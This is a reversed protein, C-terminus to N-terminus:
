DQQWNECALDPHGEFDDEYDTYLYLPNGIRAPDGYRKANHFDAIVWGWFFAMNLFWYPLMILMSIMSGFFFIVLSVAFADFHRYKCRKMDFFIKALQGIFLLYFTLGALGFDYLVELIDNHPWQYQTFETALHGRGIIWHYFSQHSFLGIYGIYINLRGSGRDTTVSKLRAGWDLGVASSIYSFTFDLLLLLLTSGFMILILKKFKGSTSIASRAYLYVPISTIFSLLASRKYSILVAAFILLVGSIQIVKSRILLIAPMLFSIYFVPNLLLMTESSTGGFIMMIVFSYFLVPLFVGVIFIHFKLTNLHLVSYYSIIMVWVWYSLRVSKFPVSEMPFFGSTFTSFIGIFAYFVAVWLFLNDRTIRAGNMLLILFSIFVMALMFFKYPGLRTEEAYSLHTATANRFALITVILLVLSVLVEFKFLSGIRGKEINEVEINEVEINEM